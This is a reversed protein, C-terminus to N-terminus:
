ESKRLKVQVRTHAHTHTIIETRNKGQTWTDAVLILIIFMEFTGRTARKYCCGRERASGWVRGTGWEKCGSIQEGNFNKEWKWFIIYMSHHLIFGEPIQKRWKTCDGPSDLNYTQWYSVITVKNNNSQIASNYETTCICWRNLSM